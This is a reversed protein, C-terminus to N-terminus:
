RTSCGARRPWARRSRASRPSRARDVRGRRAPLVRPHPRAPAAALAEILSACPSAPSSPTTWWRWRRAAARGRSSPARPERGRHQGPSLRGRRGGRAHAGRPPRAPVLRHARPAGAGGARGRPRDRPDARVACAPGPGRRAGGARGPHARAGARPRSRSCPSCSARSRPPSRARAAAAAVEDSLDDHVYLHRPTPQAYAGGDAAMLAPQISPWRSTTPPISTGASSGCAPAASCRRSGPAASSTRARPGSTRAPRSACRHAGPAASAGDPRLGGGPADRHALGRRQLLRPAPVGRSRLRRGGGRNIVRLINRNFDRTVGASDDYAAELIKVDKVLDVGLLLRDRPDPLLARSGRAPAAADPEDLNGITSGLFMVLRRGAPPPVHTLDREFDGVVAHVSLSPYDRLLREASAELTLRDVDLPVYRVARGGATVADLVRRTKESSGAGIEVIDDPLFDGILGPLIEALLASETRTPYYEPLETIREFLLSGARDYFYKPPLSKPRSTLGRRVDEELRQQQAREDTHVDIRYRM